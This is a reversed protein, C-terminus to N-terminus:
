ETYSGWVGDVKNEHVDVVELHRYGFIWADGNPNMEPPIIKPTVHKPYKLAAPRHVVLFDLAHGDTAKEFGGDADDKLTVKDFFRGSPVKIIQAFSALAARSATTDLDEILGLVTPNIYLIRDEQPVGVDDMGAVARRIAALATKGTASAGQLNGNTVNGAGANQALTAFTFADVEPVVKTRIYEGALRGFAVGATEIDDAVDVSFRSGRDYNAVVTQYELTVDGSGYGNARSYNKQGTMSLKPIYLEGANAGAKVEEPSGDLISTLSAEEYVQDLVPVMAKALEIANAM